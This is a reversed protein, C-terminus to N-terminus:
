KLRKLTKPKCIPIKAIGHHDKPIWDIDKLSNPKWPEKRVDMDENWNVYPQQQVQRPPEPERRVNAHQNDIMSDSADKPLIFVSQLKNMTAYKAATEQSDFLYPEFEYKGSLVNKSFIRYEM